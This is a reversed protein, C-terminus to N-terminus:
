VETGFVQVSLIEVQGDLAPAICATIADAFEDSLALGDVDYDNEATLQLIKGDWSCQVAQHWPRHTFEETVDTAANAGHDHPVGHCILSIRYM